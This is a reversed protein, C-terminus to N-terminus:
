EEKWWKFMEKQVEHVQTLTFKGGMTASLFAIANNLSNFYAISEDKRNQAQEIYKAKTEQAVAIGSPPRLYNDRRSSPQLPHEIDPMMTGAGVINTYDGSVTIELPIENGINNLLEDFLIQQWCSYKKGESDKVELYPDGKRSTKQKAAVIIAKTKM